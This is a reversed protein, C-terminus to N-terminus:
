VRAPEEAGVNQIVLLLLSPTAGAGAGATTTTVAGRCSCCGCGVVTIVRSTSISISIGDVWVGVADRRLGWDGGNGNRDAAHGEDAGEDASEDGSVLASVLGQFLGAGKVGPSLVGSSSEDYIHRMGGRGVTQGKIMGFDAADGMEVLPIPLALSSYGDVEEGIWLM